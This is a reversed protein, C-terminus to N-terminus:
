IHDFSTLKTSKTSKKTKAMTNQTFIKEEKTRKKVQTTTQTTLNTTTAEFTTTTAQFTTTAKAQIKKEMAQAEDKGGSETKTLMRIQATESSQKMEDISNDTYGKDICGISDVAIKDM